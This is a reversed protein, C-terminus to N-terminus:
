INKAVLILRKSKNEDFVNLDYDGFKQIIEFGLDILHEEFWDLSLRQVCEEYDHQVQGDIVKIRKKIFKEDIAKKTIFEIGDIAIKKETTDYIDQHHVNLYDILLLGDIKLHKKIQILVKINDHTDEFYGFSTFLNFVFDFKENLEFFRMDERYFSIADNQYRSKADMISRLSLDIGVVKGAVKSLINVHRGRGCAVDLCFTNKSISFHSILHQIFLSAEAENRNQYLLPYYPSDFWSEFWQM